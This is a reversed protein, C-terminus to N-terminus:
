MLSWHEDGLGSGLQRDCCRDQTARADGCENARASRENQMKAPACIGEVWGNRPQRVDVDVYVCMGIVMSSGLPPTVQFDALARSGGYWCTRLNTNRVRINTRTAKVTVLTNSHLPSLPEAFSICLNTHQPGAFGGVSIDGFSCALHCLWRVVGTMKLWWVGTSTLEDEICCMSRLGILDVGFPREFLSRMRM